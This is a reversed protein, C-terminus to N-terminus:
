AFLCTRLAELSDEFPGAPGIAALVLMHSMKLWNCL